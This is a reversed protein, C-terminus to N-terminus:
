LRLHHKLSRNVIFNFEKEDWIKLSLKFLSLSISQWVNYFIEYNKFETQLSFFLELGDKKEDGLLASLYKNKILIDRDYQLKHKTSSVQNSHKRYFTLTEALNVFRKGCLAGRCWLDYDEAYDVKTNYLGVDEFYTRKLLVSPHSISCTQILATKIQANIKSHALTYQIIKENFENTHFVAMDTGCVDLDVDDAFKELQKLFRNPHAIDDADIRAIYDSDSSLICRNLSTAVGESENTEIIKINLNKQFKEIVQTTNDISGDNKIIVDFDRFIQSDLSALTEEITKEGNLVPIIVSIKPM